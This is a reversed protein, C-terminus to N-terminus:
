RNEGTVKQLLGTLSWEKLVKSGKSDFLPIGGIYLFNVAKGDLGSLQPPAMCSITKATINDVNFDLLSGIRAITVLHWTNDTFNRRITQKEPACRNGRLYLQVQGDKILSIELFDKMGNDQYLLIAPKSAGTKFYFQLESRKPMAWGRFEAFSWGAGEHFHLGAVSDLLAVRSCNPGNFGTKSCDCERRVIKNVCKGGNYCKGEFSPDKCADRCGEVTRESKWLRARRLKQDGVAFKPTKICGEFGGFSLATSFSDRFRWKIKGWEYIPFFSVFFPGYKNFDTKKLGRCLYILEFSDVEITVSESTRRLTLKHWKLDTFSGNILRQKGSCNGMSIRVRLLGNLLFADIFEQLSGGDMYFLMGHAKTTKFRFVITSNDTFQVSRYASYAFKGYKWTNNTSHRRQLLGGHVSQQCITIALCMQVTFWVKLM